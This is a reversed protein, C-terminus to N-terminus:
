RGVLRGLSDLLADGFAFVVALEEHVGDSRARTQARRLLPGFNAAVEVALAQAPGTAMGM